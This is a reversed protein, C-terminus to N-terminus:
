PLVYQLCHSLLPHSVNTYLWDFFTVHLITQANLPQCRVIIVIINGGGNGDSKKTTTTTKNNYFCAVFAILAM